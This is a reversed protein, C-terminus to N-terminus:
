KFSIVVKTEVIDSFALEVDEIIKIKKKKGELREKRETEIVIGEETVSKLIGEITKEEIKTKVGKGINKQYQQIVKFPKDLGPSTVQLEFDVVERDLNHEVNRSVSMCDVIAVAGELADIEILIQNTSSINMDVIYLGKDLEDIREQALETIQAKDLM